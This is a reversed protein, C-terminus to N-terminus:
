TTLHSLTEGPLKGKEKDDSSWGSIRNGRSSALLFGRSEIGAIIDPKYQSIKDALRKVTATWAKTNM